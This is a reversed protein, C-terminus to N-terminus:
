TRSTPRCRTPPCRGGVKRLRDSLYHLNRNTPTARPKKWAFFPIDSGDNVLEFPGAERDRGLPAAADQRRSCGGTARAVLRLFLYYQLLVQAGPRSFNLALTPMNGGLYSVTFILDEPLYGGEGCWGGSDRTSWATSTAPRASRICGRSGSIGCWSPSSSRRSWRARHATSMSRSTWGRREQMDDLAAAIQEVPEYAGTYTVGMIAVVGITNEDVISCAKATPCPQEAHDARLAARCGLLQLVKGLGGARGLQVRPEAISRSAM